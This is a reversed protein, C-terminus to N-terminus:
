MRASYSAPTSVSAIGTASCALGRRMSTVVRGSCWCSDAQDISGPLLRAPSLLMDDGARAPASMLLRRIEPEITDVISSSKKEEEASVGAAGRLAVRRV